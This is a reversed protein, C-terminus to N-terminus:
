TSGAARGVQRIERYLSTREVPKVLFGRMGVRAAEAKVSPQSLGSVAILSAHPHLTLIARAVEIGSMQPLLLDLLAVDPRLSRFMEVAQVGTSAEGAVEFREQELMTRLVAREVDADDVILIRM